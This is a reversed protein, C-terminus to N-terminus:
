TNSSAPSTAAAPAEVLNSQNGAFNAQGGADVARGKKGATFGLRQGSQGEASLFVHLAEVQEELLVLEVAEHQVVIKRREADTFHFKKTARAAAFDAVASKGLARQYVQQWGFSIKGISHAEDGVDQFGITRRGHSSNAATREGGKVGGSGRLGGACADGHPEYDTVVLFVGDERVDGSGFVVVAVHVELDGASARSDGRQLHVDLDQTDGDPHHAFGEGLRFLGAELNQVGHLLREALRAGCNGGVGRAEELQFDRLVFDAVEDPRAALFDAGDDFGGADLDVDEFVAGVVNEGGTSRAAIRGQLYDAVDGGAGFDGLGIKAFDDAERLEAGEDFNEGARVAKQVDAFNGLM